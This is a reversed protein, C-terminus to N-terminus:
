SSKRTKRKSSSSSSSHSSSPGSAKPGYARVIRRRQTKYNVPRSPPIRAPDMRNEFEAFLVGKPEFEKALAAVAKGTSEIYEAVSEPTASVYRYFPYDEHPMGFEQRARIRAAIDEPNGYVHYVAVTYPTGKLLAMIEDFKTVRGKKTLSFTTEYVVNVGKAIAREIAAQNLDMLKAPAETGALPTYESRVRNLKAITKPDAAALADHAEDYWKFLGLNEKRTGYAFISAFKVLARHRQKLLHAMSSAARFPLMAELLTDLNVTAYDGAPLIGAEIARAHGSSKGAGPSGVIFLFTPSVSPSASDIHFLSDVIEPTFASLAPILNPTVPAAAAAAAAAM